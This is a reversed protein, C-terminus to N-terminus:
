GVIVGGKGKNWEGVNGLLDHFGWVNAAELGVPHAKDESNDKVWAVDTLETNECPSLGRTRKMLSKKRSLSM